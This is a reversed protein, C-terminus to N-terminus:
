ICMRQAMQDKELQINLKVTHVLIKINITENKKLYKIMETKDSTFKAIGESNTVKEESEYKVKINSAIGNEDAVWVLIDNETNTVNVNLNNIQIPTNFLESGNKNKIIAVYYGDQLTRTLKIGNEILNFDVKQLDTAKSYDKTQLYEIFSDSSDFKGIEVNAIEINGNTQYYISINENSNYTNINDISNSINEYKETIGTDNNVSFSFTYNDELEQDYIKLGKKVTVTYQTQDVLGNSPIFRYVKGKQEWTGEVEPVIQVYKEFNEINSYSMEIEINSSTLVRDARNAPYTNTVSLKNSTQYAWSDKTIKDKVYQLKLITNDPINQKFKLKYQGDKGTKEISYELAPEIYLSKKVSEINADKDTYIIFESDESLIQDSIKTPEIKTISITQIQTSDFKMFNMGLAFIIVFVAAISTITIIKKYKKNKKSKQENIIKKMNNEFEESPLIKNEFKQKLIKDIEDDRDM